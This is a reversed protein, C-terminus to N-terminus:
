GYTVRRKWDRVTDFAGSYDRLQSMADSSLGPTNITSSTSSSSV